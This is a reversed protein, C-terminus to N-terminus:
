YLCMWRTVPVTFLLTFTNSAMQSMFTMLRFSARCMKLAARTSPKDIMEAQTIIRGEMMGMLSVFILDQTTMNGQLILILVTPIVVNITAYYSWIKRDFFRFTLEM